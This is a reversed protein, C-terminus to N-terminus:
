MAVAIGVQVKEVTMGPPLAPDPFDVTEPDLGVLLIRTMLEGKIRRPTRGQSADSEQSSKDAVDAVLKMLIEFANEFSSLKRLAHREIGFGNGSPTRRVFSRNTSGQLAIEGNALKRGLRAFGAPSIKWWKGIGRM